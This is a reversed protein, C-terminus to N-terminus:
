HKQWLILARVAERESLGHREMELVRGLFTREVEQWFKGVSFIPLRLRSIRATHLTCVYLYASVGLEFSQFTLSTMSLVIYYDLYLPFPSGPFLFSLNFNFYFDSLVFQALINYLICHALHM